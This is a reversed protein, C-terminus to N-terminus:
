GNVAKGKFLNVHRLWKGHLLRSCKACYVLSRSSIVRAIQFNFFALVFFSLSILIFFNLTPNPVIRSTVPQNAREGADCACDGEGANVITVKLTGPAPV